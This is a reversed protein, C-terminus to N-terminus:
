IKNKMIFYVNKSLFTNKYSLLFYCPSYCLPVPYFLLPIFFAKKKIRQFGVMHIEIERNIVPFFISKYCFNIKIKPQATFNRNSNTSTNKNTM